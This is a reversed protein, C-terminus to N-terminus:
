KQLNTLFGIVGAAPYTFNNGIIGMDASFFRSRWKTVVYVLSPFQRVRCPDFRHGGAESVSVRGVSSRTGFQRSYCYAQGIELSKCGQAIIQRQLFQIFM